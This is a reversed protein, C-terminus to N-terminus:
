AVLVGGRVGLDVGVWAARSAAWRVPGWERGSIAAAIAVLVRLGFCAESVAGAKGTSLRWGRIWGVCWEREM